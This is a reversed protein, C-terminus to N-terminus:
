FAGKTRAHFEKIIRSDDFRPNLSYWNLNGCKPGRIGNGYHVLFAELIEWGDESTQKLGCDCRVFFCFRRRTEVRAVIPLAM